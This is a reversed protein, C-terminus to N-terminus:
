LGTGSDHGIREYIVVNMWHDSIFLLFHM